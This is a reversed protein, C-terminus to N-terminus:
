KRNEEKRRKKEKEKEEKDSKGKEQLICISPVAPRSEEKIKVEWRCDRIGRM